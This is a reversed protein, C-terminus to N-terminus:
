LGQRFLAGVPIVLGAASGRNDRILEALQGTDVGISLVESQETNATENIIVTAQHCKLSTMNPMPLRPHESVFKFLKMDQENLADVEKRFPEADLCYESTTANIRNIVINPLRYYSLYCAVLRSINRHTAYSHFHEQLIEIALECLEPPAPRDLLNHGAVQKVARNINSEKRFSKCFGAASVAQRRRMSTYTYESRVRGLPDRIITTLLFTQRFKCHFGFSHHSALLAYSAQYFRRHPMDEDIRHVSTDPGLAGLRDPYKSSLAIAGRLAAYFSMGGTKPVHYFFLPRYPTDPRDIRSEVCMTRDHDDFLEELM